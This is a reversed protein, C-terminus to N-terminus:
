AALGKVLTFPHRPVSTPNIPEGNPGRDFVTTEANKLAGLVEIPIEVDKGRAILYGKGNVGVKVAEKGGPGSQHPINITVMKRPAVPAEAAKAVTPEPEDVEIYDKAYGSTAMTARIKDAGMRLNVELGLSVNAFTALDTASAEILPIRKTM